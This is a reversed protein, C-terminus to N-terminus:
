AREKDLNAISTHNNSNSQQQITQQSSNINQMSNVARKTSPINEKSAEIFRNQSM